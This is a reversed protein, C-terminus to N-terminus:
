RGGEGMQELLPAPPEKPGLDLPKAMLKRDPKPIGAQAVEILKWAIQLAGMPTLYVLDDDEDVYGDAEQRIVITGNDAVYVATRPQWGLVIAEAGEGNWKFDSM